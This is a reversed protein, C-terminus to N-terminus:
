GANRNRAKLISIAETRIGNWDQSTMETSEGDLGELLAAELRAQVKRKEDERILDRIYESLSSYRGDAIQLEVFDKLPDPM